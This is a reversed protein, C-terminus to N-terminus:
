KGENKGILSHYTYIQIGSTKKFLNREPTNPDGPDGTVFPIDRSSPNRAVQVTVQAVAGGLDNKAPLQARPIVRINVTYVAARKQETSLATGNAPVLEGGQDDFYRLGKTGSNASNIRPAQFSYNTKPRGKSDLHGSRFLM